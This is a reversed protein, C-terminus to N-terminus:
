VIGTLFDLLLGVVITVSLITIITIIIIHLELGPAGGAVAGTIKGTAIFESFGQTKAMYYVYGSDEEIMRTELAEWGGEVYRKFKVTDKQIGMENLSSAELRFTIVGTGAGSLSIKGYWVVKETETEADKVYGPLEEIEEVTITKPEADSFEAKVECVGPGCDPLSATGVIIGTDTKIDMDMTMSAGETEPICAGDRCGNKCIVYGGPADGPRGVYCWYENLRGDEACYDTKGNITGKEYINYGMVADWGADTDWTCRGYTMNIKIKESRYSLNNVISEAQYEHEKGFNFRSSDDAYSLGPTGRPAVNNTDYILSFEGEGETKRYLKIRYYEKDKNVALVAICVDNKHSSLYARISPAYSSDCAGGNCRGICEEISKWSCDSDQYGRQFDDICKWGPTCFSTITGEETSTMWIGSFEGKTSSPTVTYNIMVDRVSNGGAWFLWSIKNTGPEHKAYQPESVMGIGWGEPVTEEIGLANPPDGGVDIHLHVVAKEGPVFTVPLERAVQVSAQVSAQMILLAFAFFLPILRCGM